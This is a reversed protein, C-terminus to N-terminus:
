CSAAKRNSNKLIFTLIYKVVNYIYLDTAINM